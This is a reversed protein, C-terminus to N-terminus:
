LVLRTLVEAIVILAASIGAAISGGRTLATKLGHHNHQHESLSDVISALLRTDATHSEDHRTAWEKLDHIDEQLSEITM